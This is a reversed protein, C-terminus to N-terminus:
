FQFHRQLNSVCVCELIFCVSNTHMTSVPFGDAGTEGKEGVEGPQGPYGVPGMLGDEGQFGSIRHDLKARESM